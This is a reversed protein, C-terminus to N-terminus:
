EEADLDPEGGGNGDESAPGGTRGVEKEERKDSLRNTAIAFKVTASVMEQSPRWNQLTRDKRESSWGGLAFSLDGWRDAKRALTFLAQRQELWQPCRFLFHDVSEIERGCECIYTEVAGIKALYGNLRCM